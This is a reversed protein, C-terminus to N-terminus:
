FVQASLNLISVIREALMEPELPLVQFRRDAGVAQAENTRWAEVEGHTHAEVRFIRGPDNPAALDALDGIRLDEAAVAEAADEPRDEIRQLEIELFRDVDLFEDIPDLVVRRRSYVYAHRAVSRDAIHGHLTERSSNMDLPRAKPDF